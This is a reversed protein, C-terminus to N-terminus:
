EIWRSKGDQLAHADDRIVDQAVPEEGFDVDVQDYIDADSTAKPPAAKPPAEEEADERDDYKLVGRLYRLMPDGDKDKGAKGALSRGRKLFHKLYVRLNDSLIGSGLSALDGYAAPLNMEEMSIGDLRLPVLERLLLLSTSLFEQIQAKGKLEEDVEVEFRSPGCSVYINRCALRGLKWVLRFVEDPLATSPLSKLGSRVKCRKRFEEESMEVIFNNSLSLGVGARISLRGKGEAAGAEPWLRLRFGGRYHAKPRDITRRYRIEGNMGCHQFRFRRGGMGWLGDWLGGKATAGPFIEPFLAEMRAALNEDETTVLTVIAVAGILGLLIIMIIMNMDVGDGHFLEQPARIGTWICIRHKLWM